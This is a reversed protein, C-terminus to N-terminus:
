GGGALGGGGGGGRSKIEVEEKLGSFGRDVPRLFGVRRGKM